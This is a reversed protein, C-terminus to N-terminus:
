PECRPCETRSFVSWGHECPIREADDQSTATCVYSDDCGDCTFAYWGM